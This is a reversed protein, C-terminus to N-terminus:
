SARRATIGPRNEEGAAQGESGSKLWAFGGWLHRRSTAHVFRITASRVHSVHGKRSGAGSVLAGVAMGAGTIGGCPTTYVLM